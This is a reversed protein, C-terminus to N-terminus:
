NTKAESNFAIFFNGSNLFEISRLESAKNKLSFEIGAGYEIYLSIYLTSGPWIIRSSAPEFFTSLCM